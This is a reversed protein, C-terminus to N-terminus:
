LVCSQAIQAAYKPRFTAITIKTGKPYNFYVKTVSAAKGFTYLSFYLADNNAPVVKADKHDLHLEGKNCAMDYATLVAVSPPLGALLSAAILLSM